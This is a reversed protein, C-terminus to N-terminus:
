DWTTHLHSSVWQSGEEAQTFANAQRILTGFARCVKVSHASTWHNSALSGYEVTSSTLRQSLLGFTAGRVTSMDVM